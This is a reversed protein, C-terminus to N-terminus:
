TPWISRLSNSMIGGSSRMPAPLPEVMIGTWGFRSVFPYIPDNAVGDNAGIELFVPQPRFLMLHSIFFELSVPIRADESSMAKPLWQVSYGKSTLADRILSRIM